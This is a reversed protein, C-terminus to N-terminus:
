ASARNVRRVHYAYYVAFAAVFGALDATVDYPDAMRRIPLVHQYIETGGAFLVGAVFFLGGRRRFCKPLEEEGPPCLGRLWLGGFGAFLLVHVLKDVGLEPQVTALRGTPITMALVIGITWLAAILRYHRTQM